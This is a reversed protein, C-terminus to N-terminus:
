RAIERVALWNSSAGHKQKWERELQPEIQEFDRNAFEKRVASEWGLRYAPLYQEYKDTSKYYPRTKFNEAWYLEELKPDLDDQIQDAAAAGAIAGAAGGIAAGVPGGIATGIAAGAAAGAIGGAGVSALDSDPEGSVRKGSEAEKRAIEEVTAPNEQDDTKKRM